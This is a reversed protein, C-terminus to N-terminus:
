SSASAAVVENRLMGIREIEVEVQDGSQLYVPPKRCRRRGAAHGYVSRRGAHLTCVGSVYAILEPVSFILQTTSSDQM